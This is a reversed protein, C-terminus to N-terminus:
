QLNEFPSPDAPIQDALRSNIGEPMLEDLSLFGVGQAKSILKHYAELDIGLEEAMEFDEPERGFRAKLARMAEDIRHVDKRVSRSVWDMKRLEDLIAGKIRHEAYTQFKIGLGPDFKDIADFLGIIGASILEEKSINPPLRMAMREAVYKVFPAYELILGERQKPDQGAQEIKDAQQYKNIGAKMIM